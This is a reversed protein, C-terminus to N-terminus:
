EIKVEVTSIEVFWQTTNSSRHVDYLEWFPMALNYLYHINAFYSNFLNYISTNTSTGVNSPNKTLCTLVYYAHKYKPFSHHLPMLIHKLKVAVRYSKDLPLYSIGDLMRLQGGPLYM